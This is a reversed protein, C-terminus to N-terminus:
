VSRMFWFIVDSVTASGTGGQIRFIIRQNGKHLQTGNVIEFVTRSVTGSLTFGSVQVDVGNSQRIFVKFVLNSADNSPDVRYSLVPRNVGSSALIIDNPPNFEVFKEENGFFNLAIPNDQIAHYTAVNPM